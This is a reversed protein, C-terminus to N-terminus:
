LERLITFALVDKDRGWRKTWSVESIPSTIMKGDQPESQSSSFISKSKNLSAAKSNLKPKQLKELEHLASSDLNNNKPHEKKIKEVTHDIRRFDLENVHEYNKTDIISSDIDNLLSASKLYSPLLLDDQNNIKISKSDLMREDYVSPIDYSSPKFDDLM